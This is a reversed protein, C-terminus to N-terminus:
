ELLVQYIGKPKGVWGEQIVPEEEVTTIGMETALKAVANSNGSATVGKLALQKVLEDKRL